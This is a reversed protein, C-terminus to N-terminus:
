EGGAHRNKWKDAIWEKFEYGAWYTLAIIIASASLFEVTEIIIMTTNM